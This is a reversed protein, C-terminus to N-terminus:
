DYEIDNQDWEEKMKVASQQQAGSILSTQRKAPSVMERSM